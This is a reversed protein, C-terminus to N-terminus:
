SESVMWQMARRRLIRQLPFQGPEAVFGAIEGSTSPLLVGAHLGEEWNCPWTPAGIAVLECNSQVHGGSIVPQMTTPVSLHAPGDTRDKALGFLQRIGVQISRGQRVNEKLEELDGSVRNGDADHEYVLRWRDRIFWRYVGSPCSQSEDSRSDDTRWKVHSFTGHIDYRFISIYPETWRNATIFM